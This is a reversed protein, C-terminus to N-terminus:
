NRRQSSSQLGSSIANVHQLERIIYNIDLVNAQNTMTNKDNGAMQEQTAQVETKKQGHETKPRSALACFVSLNFKAGSLLWKIVILQVPRIWSTPPPNFDGNSFSVHYFGAKKM